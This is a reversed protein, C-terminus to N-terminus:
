TERHKMCWIKCQNGQSIVDPFHMPLYAKRRLCNPMKGSINWHFDQSSQLRDSSIRTMIPFGLNRAVEEGIFRGGSGFERSITIIRKEM